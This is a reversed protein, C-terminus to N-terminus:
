NKQLAEIKKDLMELDKLRIPTEITSSADGGGDIKSNQNLADKLLDLQNNVDINEINESVTKTQFISNREEKEKGHFKTKNTSSSNETTDFTDLLGSVKDLIGTLDLSEDFLETSNDSKFSDRNFLHQRVSSLNRSNLQNELELRKPTKYMISQESRMNRGRKIYPILSNLDTSNKQVGNTSQISLSKKFSSVTYPTRIYIPSKHDFPLSLLNSPFRLSTGSSHLTDGQGMCPNECTTNMLISNNIITQLIPQLTKVVNLIMECRKIVRLQQPETVNDTLLTKAAIGAEYISAKLERIKMITHRDFHDNGLDDVTITLQNVLTLSRQVIGQVQLQTVKERNDLCDSMIRVREQVDDLIVQCYASSDIILFVTNHFKKIETQWEDTLLKVSSHKEKNDLHLYFDTIAPILEMGLSELSALSNKINNARNVDRCCAIAFSGIQLTKDTLQDFSEIADSLDNKSKKEVLLSTGCINILKRLPNLPDSFVEMILTLVSINVKRELRYLADILSNLFLSIMTIDPIENNMQIKLNEYESMVSQCVGSIAKFDQPLCVQAIAMAHSFVDEIGSFLDKLDEVQEKLSKGIMGSVIDLVLDMRYVFHNEKESVEEEPLPNPSDLIEIIMKFCYCLRDCVYKKCSFIPAELDHQQQILRVLVKFAACLQSLYLALKEKLFQSVLNKKYVLLVQFFDVISTGLEKINQFDEIENITGMDQVYNCCDQLNQKLPFYELKELNELSSVFQKLIIDAIERGNNKKDIEMKLKDVSTCFEEIVTIIQEKMERYDNADDKCLFVFKETLNSLQEHLVSKITSIYVSIDSENELIKELNKVKEVTSVFIKQMSKTKLGM